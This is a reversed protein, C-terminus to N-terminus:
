APSLGGLDDNRRLPNTARDILRRLNRRRFALVFDTLTRNARAFMPSHRQVPRRRSRRLGKAVEAFGVSFPARLRRSISCDCRPRSPRNTKIRPQFMNAAFDTVRSSRRIKALIQSRQTRAFNLGINCSTQPVRSAEPRADIQAPASYAGKPRAAGPRCPRLPLPRRHAARRRRGRGLGRRSPSHASRRPPRPRAPPRDMRVRPRGACIDSRATRPCVGIQDRSSHRLGRSLSVRQSDYSTM